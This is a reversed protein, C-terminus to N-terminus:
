GVLRSRVEVVPYDVTATLVATDLEVPVPAAGGPGTMTVTAQWVTSVSLEHAGKHAFRHVAGPHADNGPVATEALFGEDAAFRYGVVRATGAIRFAGITAVVQVVAPGGSWLWTDLGTVGRTVPNAGVVPRPLAVARWVDGVTPVVLDPPSPPTATDNPDPFPVCEHTVSIVQGGRATAVVEYLWGFVVDTPDAIAGGAANCLNQLSGARGPALPTWSYSVLRPLAPSGAEVTFGGQREVEIGVGLRGGRLEGSGEVAAGATPASAAVFASALLAVATRRGWRTMRGVTRNSARGSLRQNRGGERVM